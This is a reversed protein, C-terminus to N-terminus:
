IYKVLVALNYFYEEFDEVTIASKYALDEPALFKISNMRVVLNHEAESCKIAGSSSVRKPALYRGGASTELIHPQNTEGKNM